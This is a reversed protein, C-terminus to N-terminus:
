SVTLTAPSLLSSVSSPKQFLKRKKKTTSQSTPPINERGGGPQASEKNPSEDAFVVFPCNGNLEWM